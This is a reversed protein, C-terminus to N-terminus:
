RPGAPAGRCDSLPPSRRLSSLLAALDAAYFLTKRGLKAPKLDGRQVLKYLSTRGISLVTLTENVSYVAKTLGYDQPNM